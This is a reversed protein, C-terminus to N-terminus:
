HKGPAFPGISRSVELSKSLRQRMPLEARRKKIEHILAVKVAEVKTSKMLGILVETLQDVEPDKIFLPM